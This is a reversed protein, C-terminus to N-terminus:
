NVLTHLKVKVEAATFSASSFVSKVTPDESFSDDGLAANMMARKMEQCPQTVTDSRLDIIHQLSSPLITM